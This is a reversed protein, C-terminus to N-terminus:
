GELSRDLERRELAELVEGGLRQRDLSLRAKANRTSVGLRDKGGEPGLLRGRRFFEGRHLGLQGRDRGREGRQLGFGLPGLGDSEDIRRDAHGPRAHLTSGIEAMAAQLAAGADAQAATRATVASLVDAESADTQLGLATILQDMFAMSTEQNLAALGRLNPYNVLAANKIRLIRTPDKPDLMIVPSIGRYAKEALLQRGTETWDVQGWIGDARAEMAVIRGRSPSPLGSPAAIESAHNEDVILGGGDRPDAAMSAAIVAAANDIRYPGRRDFTLLAGQAAPLLHVWEPVEGPPLDISAMAATLHTRPNTM